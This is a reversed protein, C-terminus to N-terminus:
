KERQLEQRLKRNIEVQHDHNAKWHDRQAVLDHICQVFKHMTDRSVLMSQDTGLNPYLHSRVIQMAVNLRERQKQTLM